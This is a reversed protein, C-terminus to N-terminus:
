PQLTFAETVIIGGVDVTATFTGFGLKSLRVDFAAYGADVETEGTFVSQGDRTIRLVGLTGNPVFQQLEGLIPGAEVLLNDSPGLEFQTPFSTVQPTFEFNLPTSSEHYVTAQISVIQPVSPAQLVAQAVGSVTFANIRRESGTASESVTFVVSTGDPAVNGNKDQLISTSLTVLQRGDAPLTPPVASVSFNTPWGAIELLDAEPGFSGQSEVTITTKGAVTGSFIRQWAIINDSPVQFADLQGDPHRVRMNIITGDNVPNLYQDYALVAAISWHNADAIITDSGVLPVIPEVPADATINLTHKGRHVDSIATLTTFGSRITDSAPIILEAQGGELQTQYSRVGYSHTMLVTVQTDDPISVPGLTVTLPTGALLETPAEIPILQPAVATIPTQSTESQFVSCAGLLISILVTCAFRLRTNARQRQAHRTVPSVM